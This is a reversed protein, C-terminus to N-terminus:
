DRRRRRNDDDFFRAGEPVVREARRRNTRSSRGRSVEATGDWCREVGTACRGVRALCTPLGGLTLRTVKTGYVQRM